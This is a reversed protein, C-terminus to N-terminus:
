TYEIARLFSEIEAAMRGPHTYQPYHGCGPIEVRRANPLGNLLEIQFGPPVVRDRDGGILLIPTRVEPLIARLDLAGILRARRGVAAARPEGTNAVFFDWWERGTDAFTARNARATMRRWTPVRAMRFPLYSALCALAWQAGRVPRRAFGSQLVAGAFRDPYDHLAALAIACGLSSGVVAARDAGLHDLLEVLDSAYDALRYLGVRAGDRSGEALEYAVCRYRDTLPAMVPAFSVARDALGHVFVLVPGRGWTFYPMRYRATRCTGPVAERRWRALADALAPGPATM